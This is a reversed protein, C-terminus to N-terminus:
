ITMDSLFAVLSERQKPTMKKMLQHVQATQTNYLGEAEKISAASTNDQKEVGIALWEFSVNLVKALKVLHATSPNSIGREWKGVISRSLHMRDALDFRSIKMGERAIAVRAGIFGQNSSNINM